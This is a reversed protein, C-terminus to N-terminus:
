MPPRCSRPGERVLMYLTSHPATRLYGRGPPPVYKLQCEKNEEETPFESPRSVAFDFFMLSHSGDRNDVLRVNADCIDLSRVGLQNFAYVKQSMDWDSVMTM